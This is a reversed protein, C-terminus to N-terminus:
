LPLDPLSDVVKMMDVSVRTIRKVLDIVYV